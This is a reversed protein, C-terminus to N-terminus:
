PYVLNTHAFRPKPYVQSLLLLPESPARYPTEYVSLQSPNISKTTDEYKPLVSVSSKNRPHGNILLVPYGRHGSTDPESWQMVTGCEVMFTRHHSVSMFPLLSWRKFIKHELSIHVIHSVLMIPICINLYIDMSWSKPFDVRRPFLHASQRQCFWPDMGENTIRINTKTGQVYLFSDSVSKWNNRLPVEYCSSRSRQALNLQSKLGCPYSIRRPAFSVM